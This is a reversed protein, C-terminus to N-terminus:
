RRMSAPWISANLSPSRQNTGVAGSLRFSPSYHPAASTSVALAPSPEEGGGVRGRALAAEVAPVAEGGLLGGLLREAGFEGAEVVPREDLRGLQGDLGEQELLPKRGDLSPQAGRGAGVVLGVQLDVDDRGQPGQLQLPEGRGADGGEVALEEGVPSAVALAQRGVGDAIDM